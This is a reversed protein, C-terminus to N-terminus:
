FMHAVILHYVMRVLASGVYIVILFGFFLGVHYQTRSSLTARVKRVRNRPFPHLVTATEEHRRQQAQRSWWLEMGGVLLSFALAAFTFLALARMETSRAVRLL